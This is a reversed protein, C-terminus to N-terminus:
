APNGKLADLVRHADSVTLDTTTAVERDLVSSVLLLVQPRTADTRRQWDALGAQLAKWLGDQSKAPDDGDRNGRRNAPAPQAAEGEAEGAGSDEVVGAPEPGAARADSTAGDTPDPAQGAGSTETYASRAADILVRARAAQSETLLDVRPLGNNRWADLLASRANGTLAKADRDIIRMVTVHSLGTATAIERLSHGAASATVIAANRAATAETVAKALRNLHV